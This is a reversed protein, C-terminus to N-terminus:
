KSPKKPKTLPSKDVKGDSRSKDLEKTVTEGFGDSGFHFKWWEKAKKLFENEKTEGGTFGKEVKELYKKQEPTM